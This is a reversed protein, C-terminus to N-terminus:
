LELCLKFTLCNGTLQVINALHHIIKSYSEGKKNLFVDIEELLKKKQQYLEILKIQDYKYFLEYFEYFFENVKKYVNLIEKSSKKKKGILFECIYKYEDAIKELEEILCYVYTTKVHNTYGKKNLIRRCFTTLKNNTKEYELLEKPTNFNGKKFFELTENSFSILSLFIRRLVNKFETDMEQTLIKIVCSKTTQSVIELGILDKLNKEIDSLIKPNDFLLEFEDYGSKYLGALIRLSLSTGVENINIKPRGSPKVGKGTKISLVNGEESLDIEEGKKLGYKKVWASPLSVVMTKGAMQILKRKM